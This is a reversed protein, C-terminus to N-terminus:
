HALRIPEELTEFTFNPNIIIVYDPGAVNTMLRVIKVINWSRTKLKHTKFGLKTGKEAEAVFKVPEM